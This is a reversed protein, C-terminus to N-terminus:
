FQQSAEWAYPITQITPFRCLCLSTRTFHQSGTCTYPNSHSSDPAQFLTLFQKCQQSAAGAYPHLACPKSHSANPDQVPTLIQM